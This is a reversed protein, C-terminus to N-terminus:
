TVQKSDVKGKKMRFKNLFGCAECEVSKYVRGVRTKERLKSLCKKCFKKRKDVLRIKFKMALRKIKKVDKADYEGRKFFEEIKELAERRSLKTKM